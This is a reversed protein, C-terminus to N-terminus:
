ARRARRALTFGVLGLGMAMMAMSDAEPVAGVATLEQDANGQAFAVTSAGFIYYQYANAFTFDAVYGVVGGPGSGPTVVNNVTTPATGTYSGLTFPEGSGNVTLADFLQTYNVGDNSGLITYQFGDYQAGLHDMNPFVRISSVASSFAVAIPNSNGDGYGRLGAAITAATPTFGNGIEGHPSNTFTAYNTIGNTFDALTGDSTYTTANAAGALSLLAAGCLVSLHTLKM